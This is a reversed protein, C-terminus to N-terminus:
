RLAIWRGVSLIHSEHTRGSKHCIRVFSPLFCWHVCHRCATQSTLAAKLELSPLQCRKKSGLQWLLCQQRQKTHERFDCRRMSLLPVFVCWVDTNSCRCHKERWSFQETPMWICQFFNGTFDYVKPRSLLVKQSQVPVRWHKILHFGTEVFLSLVPKTIASNYFLPPRSLLCCFLVDASTFRLLLFDTSSM